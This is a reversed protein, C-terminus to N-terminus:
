LWFFYLLLMGFAQDSFLMSLMFILFIAKTFLKVNKFEERTIIEFYYESCYSLLPKNNVILDYGITASLMIIWLLIGIFDISEPQGRMLPYVIKIVSLYLIIMFIFSDNLITIFVHKMYWNKLIEILLTKEKKMSEGFLNQLYVM